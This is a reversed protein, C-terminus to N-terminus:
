RLGYAAVARTLKARLPFAHYSAIDRREDRPRAPVRSQPSLAIVKLGHDLVAHENRV